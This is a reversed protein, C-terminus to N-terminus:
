EDSPFVRVSVDEESIESLLNGSEGKLVHDLFALSYQQILSMFRDAQDPGPLLLAELLPGDTFSQHSAGHVVIWYSESMSEFRGLLRPHLQAEKTLFLFPQGPPAAAEDKSFPGGQQLGDFNLCAKFRPDAKCAESATIGGLSHGAAAVSDVDVSGAFPGNSNLAELQNLIYLVDATRVKIREATYSQHARPNLTWQDKNYVAVSGGSLHVAAVDYPHNVGLVIYGHSAIEGALSTYLETNTGNGPSLIVVPFPDQAKVPRADLRSRSRMFRLGFVQWWEMEGSQLLTKSLSSVYPFYGAKVGTGAEAPYWVLVIVERFDAPDETLIEPRSSDVWRFVARGVDYPGTPAPLELQSNITLVAVLLFFLGISIIFKRFRLPM